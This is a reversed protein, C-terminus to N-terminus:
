EAADSLTEEVTDVAQWLEDDTIVLPPLLRLVTKGAPLALVGRAQLASLVPAVRGRLEIGIMLGRGRVDRAVSGPLNARLHDRVAEGRTRAREILDTNQLVDLVALGAACALPNGGFTSGHSAPPLAPVTEALLAAGVPLGGAMSKALCLVDPAIGDQEYAFLTGTRGFGTQIEDVILLSGNARCLDQVARLYGAEAPHVGGEGQVVEVIVAAITDNLAAALREVNNFPVHTVTSMLLPGVPERYHREWTFSLAGLTRGHFGRMTAVFGDRGTALRAAKLAAEVAEAGSNCLYVRAMGAAECLAAQYRARVPNHFLEPCTILEASQARIAELVAPHGHGLNAAGQGGVCDIYRRGEADELTAGQGRVIQVDRKVYTGSSHTDELAAWDMVRDSLMSSM